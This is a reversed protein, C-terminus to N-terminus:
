VVAVPLDFAFSAVVVVLVSLSPVLFAGSIFFSAVFVLVAVVGAILLM